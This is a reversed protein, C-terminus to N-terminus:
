AEPDAAHLDMGARGHNLRTHLFFVKRFKGSGADAIEALDSKAAHLVARGRALHDRQARLYPMLLVIWVPPGEIGPEPRM